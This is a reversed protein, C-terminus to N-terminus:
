IEAEKLKSISEVGIVENYNDDDNNCLAKYQCYSCASKSKDKLPYPNIDGIKIRKIAVEVQKIAFDLLYDFDEKEICMNKYYSSEKIKGKSTTQLHITKSKYSENVLGRDMDIILDDDKLMVGNLIYMNDENFGNMIPFYYVGRPELGSCKEFARAYVLLQLKKGSLLDDYNKFQNDGTKYDIIIFGNDKTDVRDIYGKIDVGDISIINDFKYEFYKPVFNGSRIETVVARVVRDFERYLAKIAYSNDANNIMDVYESKQLVKNLASDAMKKIDEMNEHSLSYPVVSSLAEHIINGIDIPKIQTNQNDKLKLGYKVYYMYPCRNYTEIQSVSTTNSSLFNHKTLLKKDKDSNMNSIYTKANDGSIEYLSSCLKRFNTNHNYVDWNVLYDVLNEEINKRTLNNFIVNNADLNHYNNAVVDLANSYNEITIDGIKRLSEILSNPYLKGEMNGSLFSLYLKKKPKFCLEFLKFVKRANLMAITPTLRNANPLRLLEEDTVLGNDLKPSPLKSDNNGLIYIYEFNSIYSSEFDAVFLTNSTIPPMSINTSDFYERYLNLFDEFSVFEISGFVGLYDKNINEFKNIVQDFTRLQISTLCKAFCSSRSIIYNFLNEIVEICDCNFEITRLKERSDRILEIFQQIEENQSDINNICMDSIAGIRKLRMDINNVEDIDFNLIPSKIISSFDFARYDGCIINCIDFLLRILYHDILKESRDFYYNISYKKLEQTIIPMYDNISPTVIAFQSINISELMLKSYIDSITFKVEDKISDFMKVEVDSNSLNQKDPSYALLNRALCGRLSGDDLDIKKVNYELGESKYIDILDYYVKNNYINSNARNKGYTCTIYFGESFKSLKLLINYMVRTFDDFEIVYFITNEFTNGDISDAFLMLQNFSDTYENQLYKEYETYVLKIDKQKLNAYSDSNDVFMDEPSVNCSKYFCITEFLSSAFGIFSSAKSFVLLKDANDSLIKKVLAVGSQKSLLKKDTKKIVSKSLRSISIINVDFFCKEGTEDFLRQELSFLSRDPAIIIHNKSKDRNKLLTFIYDNNLEGYSGAIININVLM